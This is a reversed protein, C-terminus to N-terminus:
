KMLKKRRTSHQVMFQKRKRYGGRGPLLDVLTANEKVLRINDEKVIKLEEKVIKLEEKVIKLQDIYRKCMDQKQELRETLTRIPAASAAEPKQAYPAYGHYASAAEQKQAYPDYGHYASAAEQQQQQAVREDYQRVYEPSSYMLFPPLLYKKIQDVGIEAEQQTRPALLSKVLLALQPSVAKQQEPTMEAYGTLQQRIGLEEVKDNIAQQGHFARHQEDTLLSQRRPPPRREEEDSSSDSYSM